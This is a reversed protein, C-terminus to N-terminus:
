DLRSSTIGFIRHLKIFQNSQLELVTQRRRVWREVDCFAIAYNNTSSKNFKRLHVGRITAFLVPVSRQCVHDSAPAGREDWRDDSKSILDVITDNNNVNNSIAKLKNDM